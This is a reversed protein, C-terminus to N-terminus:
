NVTLLEFLPSMGRRAQPNISDTTEKERGKMTVTYKHAPIPVNYAAPGPSHRGFNDTQSM